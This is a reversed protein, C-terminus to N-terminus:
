NILLLLPILLSIKDLPFLASSKINSIIGIKTIHIPKIFIACSLPKNFLKAFNNFLGREKNNGLTGFFLLAKPYMALLTAILIIPKPRAAVGKPKFAISSNCFIFSLFSVALSAIIVKKTSLVLPTVIIGEVIIARLIIFLLEFGVHIIIDQKSAVM